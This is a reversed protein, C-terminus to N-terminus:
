FKKSRAGHKSAKTLSWQPLASVKSNELLQTDMCIEQDGTSKSTREYQQSWPLWGQLLFKGSLLFKWLPRSFWKASSSGNCFYEPSSFWESPSLQVVTSSCNLRAILHITSSIMLAAFSKKELTFQRLYLHTRRMILYLTTYPKFTFLQSLSLFELQINLFFIYFSVGPKSTPM